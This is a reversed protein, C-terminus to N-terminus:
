KLLDTMLMLVLISTKNCRNLEACTFCKEQTVLHNLLMAFDFSVVGESIMIRVLPYVWSVCMFILDFTIGVAGDKKKTQGTSQRSLVPNNKYYWNVTSKVFMGRDIYCFHCFFIEVVGGSNYSGLNDGATACLEGRLISCIVTSSNELEKCDSILWSLVAEQGFHKFDQERCLCVLQLIDINSRYYLVMNTILYNFCCAGSNKKRGSGLPKEVEFSDKCLILAM